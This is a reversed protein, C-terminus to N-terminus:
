EGAGQAHAAAEETLIPVAFHLSNAGQAVCLKLVDMVEDVGAGLALAAKIHRQTGPAYMHTISADFAISILEVFRPELVGDTYFGAGASIFHETWSPDLEFFPDWARNWQGIAKMQDVAPTQPRMTNRAELEKCVSKAEELLIPAGLSMSHLALMAAMKLVELIEESKAGARLASRIHCRLADGDMNTISASLGVAILQLEKEPLVGNTWPDVAVRLYAETWAPDLDRLADLASGWTGQARVKDTASDKVSESNNM